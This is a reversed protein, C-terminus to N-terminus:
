FMGRPKGAMSSLPKFRPESPRTMLIVTNYIISRMPFVSLPRTDNPLHANDLCLDLRDFVNISQDPRCHNAPTRNSGDIVAATPPETRVPQTPITFAPNSYKAILITPFAAASQFRIARRRVPTADGQLFEASYLQEFIYPVTRRVM